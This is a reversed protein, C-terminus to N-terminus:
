LRKEQVERQVRMLNGGWIKAIDSKSYGRRLLEVTINKMDAVTKCGEIGGGGDFDSGIGVYDVGIIQVVHDIHDVADSVSAIKLNEAKISDYEWKMKDREAISLKSMDGYRDTVEKLLSDLKPNPQPIQLYNSLLCIQIVGGNDKLELLMDDTLNRPHECLARCSSHSAIVPVSSIELVDSFTKDSVHSVDIMMGIRNMEKVVEKGFSSLGNHEPGLRDSSSDCIDNNKSHSLTMYSAGMDFYEEIKSLDRGIAYGNEIGIFIVSKGAKKIRYADDPTLAIEADSSYKEISKYITSIIKITKDYVAEYASDNRVGQGIYSAFYEVDLGGEKMRPFDVSGSTNRIGPDFGTEVMDIPTDCHSDITLISAHLREARRMLQADKDGCSSFIFVMILIYPIISKM